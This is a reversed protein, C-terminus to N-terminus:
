QRIQNALQRTSISVPTLSNMTTTLRNRDTLHYEPDNWSAGDRKEIVGVQSVIPGDSCVKAFRVM